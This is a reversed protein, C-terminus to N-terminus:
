SQGRLRASEGRRRDSFVTEGLVLLATGAALLLVPPPQNYVITLVKNLGLLSTSPALYGLAMPSWNPWAGFSIWYVGMAFLALLAAVWLFLGAAVVVKGVEGSSSDTAQDPLPETDTM